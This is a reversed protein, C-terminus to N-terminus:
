RSCPYCAKGLQLGIDAPRGSSLLYMIGECRLDPNDQILPMKSQNMVPVSNQLGCKFQPFRCKNIGIFLAYRMM